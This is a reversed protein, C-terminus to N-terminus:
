RSRIIKEGAVRALTNAITNNSPLMACYLMDQITLIDGLPFIESGAGAVIDGSLIEVKENLDKCYDLAVLVTMLKTTSAPVTQTTPNKTWLFNPTYRSYTTRSPLLAVAGYASSIDLGDVTEGNLVKTALDYLEKSSVHRNASPGMVAGVLWHDKDQAEVITLLNSNGYGTGSKGGFIHYYDDLDPKIVTSEITVQRPNVGEVNVNYTQENWVKMLEDYGTAAIGLRVLDSACSLQATQDSAVGSSDIYYTNTMGLKQAKKNMEAIFAARAESPTIPIIISKDVKNILESQISAIVQSFTSLLKQTPKGGWINGTGDFWSENFKSLVTDLFEATPENGAGFTETLDIAIVYKFKATKGTATTADVYHNRLAVYFGTDNGTFNHVFSLNNWEGNIPSTKIKEGLLSGGSYNLVQLRSELTVEDNTMIGAKVYIKKGTTIPYVIRKIIGVRYDGGTGVSTLINNEISISSQHAQWTDIANFDGYAIINTAPFYTDAEVEEYREKLSNFNKNKIISNHADTVELNANEPSLPIVLNDIRLNTAEVNNNVEEKTAKNTNLENIAGTVTKSTTTRAEDTNNAKNTNVENVANVVSTKDSTNLENKDGINANTTNLASQNAKEAMQSNINVIDNERVKIQADIDDFNKNLVVDWNSDGRAPKTLGYNATTTAM